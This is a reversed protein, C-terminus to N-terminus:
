RSAIACPLRLGRLYTAWASSMLSLVALRRMRAARSWSGGSSPAASPLRGPSAGDGWCSSDHADLLAPLAVVDAVAAVPLMEAARERPFLVSLRELEVLLPGALHACVRQATGAALSSSHSSEHHAISLGSHAALVRACRLSTSFRQTRGLIPTTRRESRPRLRTLSHRASIVAAPHLGVWALWASATRDAARLAATVLPSSGAFGHQPTFRMGTRTVRGRTKEGNSISCPMESIRSRSRTM